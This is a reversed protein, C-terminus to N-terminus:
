ICSYRLMRTCIHVVRVDDNAAGSDPLNVCSVIVSLHLDFRVSVCVCCLCVASFVVRRVM